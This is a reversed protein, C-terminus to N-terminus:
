PRSYVSASDFHRPETPLMSSHHAVRKALAAAYGSLALVQPRNRNPHDFLLEQARDHAALALDHHSEHDHPAVELAAVYDTHLDKLEPDDSPCTPAALAAPQQASPAPQQAPISLLWAQAVHHQMHAADPSLRAAELHADALVPDPPTSPDCKLTHLVKLARSYDDLVQAKFSHEDAQEANAKQAPSPQANLPTAPAVPKDTPDGVADIHVPRPPSLRPAIEHHKNAETRYLDVLATYHSLPSVGPQAKALDHEPDFRLNAPLSAHTALWHTQVDDPTPPAYLRAFTPKPDPSPHM